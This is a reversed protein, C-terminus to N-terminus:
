SQSGTRELCGLAEEKMNARAYMCAANIIVNPENPAAQLARGAWELARERQGEDMLAGAGLILARPNTPELELHREIRRLGARRAASAEELRRLPVDILISSQFDELRIEVFLGNAQIGSGEVGVLHIGTAAPM